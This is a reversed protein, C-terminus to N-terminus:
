VDPKESPESEIAAITAELESGPTALPRYAEVLAGIADPEESPRPDLLAGCMRCYRGASERNGAGCKPCPYWKEEAGLQMWEAREERMGAEHARTLLATLVGIYQEDIEPVRNEITAGMRDTMWADLHERAWEEANWDSM